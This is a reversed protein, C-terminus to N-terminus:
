TSMRQIQLLGQGVRPPGVAHTAVGVGSIADWGRIGRNAHSKSYLEFITSKGFGVRYGVLLRFNLFIGGYKSFKRSNKKCFINKKFV